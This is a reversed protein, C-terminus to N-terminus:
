PFKVRNFIQNLEVSTCLQKWWCKHGKECVRDGECILGCTRFCSASCPWCNKSHKKKLKCRVTSAWPQLHPSHWMDAIIPCSPVFCRERQWHFFLSLAVRSKRKRHPTIAARRRKCLIFLLCHRHYAIAASWKRLLIENERVQLMEFMPFACFCPSPIQILTYKKPIKIFSKYMYKYNMFNTFGTSSQWRLNFYEHETFCVNAWHLIKKSPVSFTSYAKEEV